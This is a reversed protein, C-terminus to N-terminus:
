YLAKQKELISKLFTSQLLKLRLKISRSLIIKIKELFTAVWYEGKYILFAM